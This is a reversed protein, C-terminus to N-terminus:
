LIVTGFGKASTQEGKKRPACTQLGGLGCRPCNFASSIVAVSELDRSLACCIVRCGAQSKSQFPLSCLLMWRNLNVGFAMGNERASSELVCMVCWWRCALMWSLEIFLGVLTGTCEEESPIM